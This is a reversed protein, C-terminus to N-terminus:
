GPVVVLDPTDPLTGDPEVRLGHCSEVMERHDLTYLGVDLDAGVSEAHSFAEYPGIADLDDFGDFLLIAIDM